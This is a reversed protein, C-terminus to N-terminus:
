GEGETWNIAQGCKECYSIGKHYIVFGNCVPCQMVDEVKYTGDTIPKKPIQKELAEIVADFMEQDVEIIKSSEQNTM